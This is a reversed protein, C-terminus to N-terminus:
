NCRESRREIMLKGLRKKRWKQSFFPILGLLALIVTLTTWGPSDKVPPGIIKVSILMWDINGAYDQVTLNYNYTGGGLKALDMTMTTVLNVSTSSVSLSELTVVINEAVEESSPRWCEAIRDFDIEGYDTFLLTWTALVVDGQYLKFLHLSDDTARFTFTVTKDEGEDIVFALSTMNTLLPPFTDRVTIMVTDTLTKSSYDQIQLTYNYEQREVLITVDVPIHILEGSSWYGTEVAEHERYIAYQTPELNTSPIWTIIHIGIVDADSIEIIVNGDSLIQLNSLSPHIVYFLPNPDVVEETLNYPIDGIGDSDQDIGSYDSWYNGYGNLSWTNNYELTDYGQPTENNRLFINSYILNESSYILYIGYGLNDKAINETLNNHHSSSLIFGDNENNNAINRQLVNSDSDFVLKFGIEGNKTANNTILSNNASNSIQFGDITNDKAVNDILTNNNSKSLDFGAEQNESSTNNMLTNFAGYNSSLVFGSLGNRIARNGQLIFYKCDHGLYFGTQYNLRATNKTLTCNYSGYFDFGTGNNRYAKNLLLTLNSCFRFSYGHGLNEEVFNSELLINSSNQLKYGEYRNSMVLNDNLTSNEFNFAYVGASCSSIENYALVANSVNVLTIGSSVDTGYGNLLLNQLVFSANTNEIHILESTGSTFEFGDLVFPNSGTGNGEDTFDAFDNNENIWIPAIRPFSDQDEPLLIGPTWSTGYSTGTNGNGSSDTLSTGSDEDFHYWAITDSQALYWRGGAIYDNYVQAATLSRNVFRLEDMDGTFYDNSVPGADYDKGLVWPLGTTDGLVKSFTHNWLEGGNRYLTVNTHTTNAEAVLALHQWGTIAAGELHTKGQIWVYYKSTYLGLFLHNTSGDSPHKGVFTQLAHPTTPNVWLEITFNNGLSFDTLNAYDLQSSEFKLARNGGDIQYLFDVFGDNDADPTVWDNWHNYAFRNGQGGGYAQCDGANNHFFNNWCASNNYSDSRMYLGYGTNNFLSNWTLTNNHVGHLSIGNGNTNKVTNKELLNFSSAGLWASIVIGYDDNDSLTNRTLNNNQSGAYLYIGLYSSNSVTNENLSNNHSGRIHIGYVHNQITNRELINFNSAGLSNSLVIGYQNNETLINDQLLNHHSGGRVYFGLNLQQSVENHSLTNNYSSTTIEVGWYNETIINNTILGNTVNSLRLGAEGTDTAGRITVNAICFYADTDQIHIGTPGDSVIETDNLVYPDGATGTGNFGAATFESNRTITIPAALVRHFPRPTVAIPPSPLRGKGGDTEPPMFVTPPSSDDISLLPDVSSHLLVLPSVLALLIVIQQSLKEQM